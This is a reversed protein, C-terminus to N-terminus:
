LNTNFSHLAANLQQSERCLGTFLFDWNQGVDVRFPGTALKLKFKMFPKRQSAINGKFFTCDLM